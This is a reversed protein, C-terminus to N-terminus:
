GDTDPATGRHLLPSNGRCNSASSASSRYRRAAELLMQGEGCGLDVFVNDRCVDGARLIRPLTLWDSASYGVLEGADEGRVFCSRRM